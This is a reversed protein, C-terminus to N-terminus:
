MSPNEVRMFHGSAPSRANATSPAAHLLSGSVVVGTAGVGTDGKVSVTLPESACFPVTDRVNVASDAPFTLTVNALVSGADAITRPRPMPMRDDVPM